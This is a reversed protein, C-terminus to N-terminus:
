ESMEMIVNPGHELGHDPIKSHVGCYPEVHLLAGDSSCAAWLKFGFRIPKGKIFQKNGHKGYYQVMIEDVSTYERCNMHKNVKNLHEFLFCVKYFRDETM